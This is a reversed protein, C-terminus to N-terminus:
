VMFVSKFLLQFRTVTKVIISEVWLIQSVFHMILRIWLLYPMGKRFNDPGLNNKATRNWGHFFIWSWSPCQLSGEVLWITVAIKRENFRSGYYCLLNFYWWEDSNVFFNGQIRIKFIRTREFLRIQNLYSGESTLCNIKMRM